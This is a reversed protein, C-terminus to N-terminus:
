RAAWFGARSANPVEEGRPSVRGTSCGCASLKECGTESKQIYLNIISLQCDIRGCKHHSGAKTHFKIIALRRPNACILIDCLHPHRVFSSTACILIDCLHPHRVFSSTACILIDCLTLDRVFHPRPCFWVNDPSLLFMFPCIDGALTGCAMATGNRMTMKAIRTAHPELAVAVESGACVGAGVAAAAAGVCAGVAAAAAM